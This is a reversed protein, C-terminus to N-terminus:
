EARTARGATPLGLDLGKDQRPPLHRVPQHEVLVPRNAKRRDEDALKKAWAQEALIEQLLLTNVYLLASQLVQLAHM